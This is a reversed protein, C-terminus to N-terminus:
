VNTEKGSRDAGSGAPREATGADEEYTLPKMEWADVAHIKARGRVLVAKVLVSDSRSPFVAQTLCQRDNAFVEILCGDLFVRLRLREEARLAFPAEFSPYPHPNDEAKGCRYSAFPPSGYAVDARGTSRSADLALARREPEFWLLTKEEEGPSCRLMLGVLADAGAEIDFNLELRSGAIGELNRTEGKNLDINELRRHEGRLAAVEKAPAISLAGSGADWDMVRPLSQYGSGAAQQVPRVRPDTVWGWFVRRGKGDLLSEPAFFMGGRWNMRVHDEPEFRDRARDFRGVYCRAGIGHSICLLVHRDRLRFFDPCSCDEYEERWAPNGDFFPGVKEWTLLDPSKCLFLTDRGNPLTNGGLLCYYTDDEMWLYPDWVKYRGHDPEGPKPCPIVPNRPHKTWRVLDDDEATAVCVGADIGFWCLMPRGDKNVFANGSFTGTDADGDEPVLSPPHRRWHVMDASSLHGWCHERGPRSRDQYIYMLHYRGRWYICGNPDGPLWMGEEPQATIHYIPWDPGRKGNM